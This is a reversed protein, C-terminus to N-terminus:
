AAGAKPDAGAELLLALADTHGGIAALSLPTYGLDNVRDVAASANLLAEISRLSGRSAASHLPVSGRWNSANPDAGAALLIEAHEPRGGMRVLPLTWEGDGSDLRTNADLGRDLLYQVAYPENDSAQIFADHVRGGSLSEDLYGLTRLRREEAVATATSEEAAPGDRSKVQPFGVILLGVGLLILAIRSLAQQTKSLEQAIAIAEGPYVSVGVRTRSYSPKLARGREDWIGIACILEDPRLVREELEVRNWDEIADHKWDVALEGSEDTHLVELAVPRGIQPAPERVREALAQARAQECEVEPSESLDPFALLRVSGDGTVIECPALHYGEFRSGEVWHSDEKGGRVLEVVTYDYAVCETGSLPAVLLEGRPRTRGELAVLKGNRRTDGRVMSEISILDRRAWRSHWALWLAGGFCITGGFAVAIAWFGEEVQPATIWVILVWVAVGLLLYFALRAYGRM